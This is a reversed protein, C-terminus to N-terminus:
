WHQSKYSFRICCGQNVSVSTYALSMSASLNGILYFFGSIVDAQNFEVASKEGSSPHTLISSCILPIGGSLYQCFLMTVLLVEIQHDESLFIVTSYFVNITSFIYWGSILLTTFCTKQHVYAAMASEFTSLYNVIWRYMM